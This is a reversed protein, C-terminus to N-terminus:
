SPRVKKGLTARGGGPRRIREAPQDVLGADLEQRGRRSTKEELGTIQAVLQVGGHGLRDAELAAFWRRQAEDLRSFVLLLHQHQRQDPHGQPQQCATCPCSLLPSSM